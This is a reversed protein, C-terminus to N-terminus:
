GVEDEGDTTREGAALAFMEEQMAVEVLDPPLTGKKGKVGLLRLMEVQRVLNGSGTSLKGLAQDYADKAQEINAGVKKLEAVFGVFKDYLASGRDVIERVNRVQQEQKWLNAVTRVIFLLTSPSVLLVDKDWADSWLKEDKAIALAFAPEIPMFMVVFDLSNLGHLTQYSKASLGALHNRVSKLHERLSAERSPEDDANCYDDYDKLSMKADIVIHKGGPLDLVYDPRFNARSEDKFTRQPHYNVGEQLGAKQLVLRLFDDGLKGAAGPSARLARALNSAEKSLQSNMSKLEAHQVELKTSQVLSEARVQEVKTRFDTLQTELPKLVQELNTKNQETFRASKDELIEGALAKFQTSLEERADTLLQLKEAAQSRENRLNAATEALSREVVAKQGLLQQQERKLEGLEGDLEANRQKLGEVLSELGGNARSLRTITDQLQDISSAAEDLERELSAARAAQEQARALETRLQGNEANSQSAQAAIADKESRSLFWVVFAGLFAGIVMAAGTIVISNMGMDKWM